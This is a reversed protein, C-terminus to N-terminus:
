SLARYAALAREDLPGSDFGLAGTVCELHRRHGDMAAPGALRMRELGCALAHVRVTAGTSCGGCRAGAVVAARRAMGLRGATRVFERLNALRGAGRCRAALLEGPDAHPMRLVAPALRVWSQLLRDFAPAEEGQRSTDLFEALRNRAQGARVARAAVEPDVGAPVGAALAGAPDCAAEAPAGAVILHAAAIDLDVKLSLVKRQRESVGSGAVDWARNELLYLAEAPAVRGAEPLFGTVALANGFLMFHSTRLDATGPRLPQARLDAPSYVGVEVGRLYRVGRQPDGAAAVASRAARRVSAVDAEGRAVVYLDIDSFVDVGDEGEAAWVLGRGVSGGAFIAVISDEPATCVIEVAIAAARRRLM